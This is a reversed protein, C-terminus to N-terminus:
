NRMRAWEYPDNSKRSKRAYRTLSNAGSYGMMEQVANVNAGSEILHVGFSHRLDNATIEVDIEARNVYKKILKWLGQRSLSEGNYNVFVMDNDESSIVNRADLLYDAIAKKAKQGYPILRGDSMRLCGISMDINELRLEITESVKLGTAYMLELIAKDRKGVPSDGFDQGLLSEIEYNSLIRPEKKEVKPNRIKEAPNDNINGNDVLFRFFAKISTIHRAISYPSYNDDNLSSVYGIVKDESIDAVNEIGREKMYMAMRELDSSYSAITNDSTKKVAKLYITFEKILQNM